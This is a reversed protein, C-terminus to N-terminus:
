NTNGANFDGMLLLRVLLSTLRPILELLGNHNQSPPMFVCCITLPASGSRMQCTVVNTPYTPVATPLPYPNWCDEISLLM